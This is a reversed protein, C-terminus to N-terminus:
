PRGVNGFFVVLVACYAAAAALIEHRKARTFLSLIASFALTALLLVGICIGYAKGTGVDKILHYLIYIPLVLLILIVFTIISNVLLNIRSRTYYIEDGNSKMQTEKSCFLWKILDCHFLKFFGEIGADLRAHERGARLTIMDEKRYIWEREEEVVLEKNRMYNAVSQYDSSSPRNSAVLSQAATVLNAYECFAKELTKFLERRPEADKKKLDRTILRRSKNHEDRKDMTDLRKELKRLEDQKELLLRAQIYGFRRYIMFNEDSDLFAALNPYGLPCDELQRVVVPVKYKPRRPRRRWSITAPQFINLFTSRWSRPSRQRSASSSLPTAGKTSKSLSSLPRITTSRSDPALTKETSVTSPPTMEEGEERVGAKGEEMAKLQDSSIDM